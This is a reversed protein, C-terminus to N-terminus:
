HFVDIGITPHVTTENKQFSHFDRDYITTIGDKDKESLSSWRWRKKLGKDTTEVGCHDSATLFRM